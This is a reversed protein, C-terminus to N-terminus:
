RTARLQGVRRALEAPKTHAPFRFIQLLASAPPVTITKVSKRPCIVHRRHFFKVHQEAAVLDHRSAQTQAAAAVAEDHANGDVGIQQLRLLAEDQEIRPEIRSEHAVGRKTVLMEAGIAPFRWYHPRAVFEQALQRLDLDRRVIHPMHDEAVGMEVMRAVHFVKRVGFHPHLAAFVGEGEFAGLTGAHHPGIQVRVRDIPGQDLAVMLDHRPQRTKGGVTVRRPVLRRQDGQRVRTCGEEGAIRAVPQLVERLFYQGAFGGGGVLRQALMRM